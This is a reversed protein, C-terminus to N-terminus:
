LTKLADIIDDISPRTKISETVFGDYDKNFLALKAEYTRYDPDWKNFNQTIDTQNIDTLMNYKLKKKGSIKIGKFENFESIKYNRWLIDEAKRQNDNSSETPKFTEGYLVMFNDVLNQYDIYNKDKKFLKKNANSLFYILRMFSYIDRKKYEDFTYERMNGNVYDVQVEPAMYRPTGSNALSNYMWNVKNHVDSEGNIEKKFQTCTGFDILKIIRDNEDYIFNEIKIDSHVIKNDHLFKICNAMQILDAKTLFKEICYEDLPSGKEEISYLCCKDVKEFYENKYETSKDSYM